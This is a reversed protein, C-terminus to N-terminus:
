TPEQPWYLYTSILAARVVAPPPRAPFLSSAAACQVPGAGRGPRGPKGANWGPWGARDDVTLCAALEATLGVSM